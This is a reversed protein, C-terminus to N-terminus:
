INYTYSGMHALFGGVCQKLTCTTYHFNYQSLIKFGNKPLETKYYGLWGPHVGGDKDKNNAVQNTPTYFGGVILNNNKNNITKQPNPIVTLTAKM